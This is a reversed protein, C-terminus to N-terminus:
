GAQVAAPRAASRAAAAAPQLQHRGLVQRHGGREIQGVPVQGGPLPPQEAAQAQVGAGVDVGVGGGRQIAGAQGGRAAAQLGQVALVQDGLGGAAAVPQVVQEALVGTGQGGGVVGGGAVGGGAPQQIVVQVGGPGGALM